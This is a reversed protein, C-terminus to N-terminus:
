DSLCAPIQMGHNCKFANMVSPENGSVKHQNNNKIPVIPLVTCRVIHLYLSVTYITVLSRVKKMIKFVTKPPYLM